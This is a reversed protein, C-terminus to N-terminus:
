IVSSKPYIPLKGVRRTRRRITRPRSKGGTDNRESFDTFILSEEEGRQGIKKTSRKEKDKEGKDEEEGKHM